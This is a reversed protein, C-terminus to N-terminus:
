FWTYPEVPEFLLGTLEASEGHLSPLLSKTYSLAVHFRIWKRGDKGPRFYNSEGLVYILDRTRLDFMWNDPPVSLPTPDYFEGAYNHPAKQLLNIPNDHALAAVDSPKGHLLIQGYQITLSSQIAAVVQEMATKEAQEQYYTFREMFFAMLSVIIAIVIVLELLTFGKSAFVRLPRATRNGCSISLGSREPALRLVCPKCRSDQIKFRTDPNPESM